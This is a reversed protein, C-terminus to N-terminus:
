CSDGSGCAAAPTSHEVIVFVVDGALALALLALALLKRM